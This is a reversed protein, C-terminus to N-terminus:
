QRVSQIQIKANDKSEAPQLSRGQESPPLGFFGQGLAFLWINILIFLIVLIRM